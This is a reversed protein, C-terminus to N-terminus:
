LQSYEGWSKPGCREDCGNTCPVLILKWAVDFRSSPIPAVTGAIGIAAVQNAAPNSPPAPSFLRPQGIMKRRLISQLKAIAVVINVLCEEIAPFESIKRECGIQRDSAVKTDRSHKLLLVPM